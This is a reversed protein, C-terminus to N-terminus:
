LGGVVAALISFISFISGGHRPRRMRRLLIQDTATRRPCAVSISGM